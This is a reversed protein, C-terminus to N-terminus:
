IGGRDDRGLLALWSTSDALENHLTDASDEAWGDITKSRNTGQPVLAAASLLNAIRQQEAAYLTAHVQARGTVHREREPTLDGIYKLWEEAKAKHDIM